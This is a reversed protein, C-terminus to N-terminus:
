NGPLAIEGADYRVDETPSTDALWQGAFLALDKFGRPGPWQAAFAAFDGFDETCDADSDYWASAAAGAPRNKAADCADAYVRVEIRDSGQQAKADIAHLELVYLGPKALSATTAPKSRDGFVVASGAPSSLVSWGVTTVDNTDDAVSGNLAVTTVGAKLWTLVSTGADVRPATTKLEVCALTGPTSSRVYIRGNALVPATRCISGTALVQGKVAAVYGTPSAKAISLEGGYTLVILRGDALAVCSNGSATQNWMVNGTSFEICTLNPGRDNPGYLYGQWLVATNYVSQMNKQQFWVQTVQNGSVRVLASGKNYGSSAFLENGDVVLDAINAPLSTVWPYEWVIRGTLPEIAAFTKEGMLVLLHQGNNDFPVPTSYGSTQTGTTWALSGDSARLALGHKGANYIVLDGYPYPSGGFYWGPATVRYKAVLDVQWLVTGTMADFCYALGQKSLTYVRDGAVTPTTNTGGEYSNDGLAAAYSTSWIPAGSGADLCYVTDCAKKSSGVQLQSNCMTYLRGGAVAVASAGLGVPKTWRVKFTCNAWDEGWHREHSIGNHNPGRFLPWDDATAPATLLAMLLILALPTMEIKHTQMAFDQM